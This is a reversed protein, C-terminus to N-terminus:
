VFAHIISKIPFLWVATAPQTNSSPFQDALQTFRLGRADGSGLIRGQYQAICRECDSLTQCPCDRTGSPDARQFNPPQLVFGGCGPKQREAEEQAPIHSRRTACVRSVRYRSRAHRPASVSDSRQRRNEQRSNQRLVDPESLRRARYTRQHSDRKQGHADKKGSSAERQKEPNKPRQRRRETGDIILDTPVGPTIGSTAFASGDREPMQKLDAFSRELIPLLRHIWENTQSQSLNFQLGQATQLPYTKQYILIFLLQDEPTALRAKNGGGAKRRRPQGARTHTLSHGKASEETFTPLLVDFEPVTLSTM